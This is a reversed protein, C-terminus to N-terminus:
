IKELWKEIALDSLVDWFDLKEISDPSGIYGEIDVSTSSNSSLSEIMRPRKESPIQEWESKTKM